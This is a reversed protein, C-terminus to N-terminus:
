ELVQGDFGAKGKDALKAQETAIFDSRKKDLEVAEKRLDERKKEVGALVKKQEELTKGRLQEPLEEPKLEELKVTKNKIGDILDYTAAQANNAQFAGRAAAEAMPLKAADDAKKQDAQQRERAGYVVTSRALDTNIEALRKDFPTAVVPQVGGDQAIKVYSGE